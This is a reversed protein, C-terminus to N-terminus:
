RVGDMVTERGAAEAERDTAALRRELAVTDIGGDLSM